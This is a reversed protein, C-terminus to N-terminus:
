FKVLTSYRGVQSITASVRTFNSGRGFNSSNLSGEDQVIPGEGSADGVNGLMTGSMVRRKEVNGSKERRSM